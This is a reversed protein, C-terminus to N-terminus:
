KEATEAYAYAMMLFKWNHNITTKLIKPKLHYIPYVFYTFWQIQFSSAWKFDLYTFPKFGKKSAIKGTKFYQSIKKESIQLVSWEPYEM